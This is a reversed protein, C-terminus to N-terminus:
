LRRGALAENVRTMLLEATFPKPLLPGMTEEMAHRQLTEDAHGSIFLVRLRPHFERLKRALELGSMPPMVVDTILLDVTATGPACAELANPGGPATLVRYGHAELLHQAFGCVGPDDEVLLITERGRGPPAAAEPVLPAQEGEERLRPLYLRFTTGEGPESEVQVGGNSQKMIGYVMALGLGTGKDKSKTTFFPEFIRAQTDRDMGCGTDHLVLVMYDGRPLPIPGQLVPEDITAQETRVTLRGGRPMADRSNVALNMILQQIQDPDANVPWPKACLEAQLEIDEGILRRLMREMDSFMRNLDVARPLMPQKRSFALLQRTLAAAREGARRIETLPEHGPEHEAMGSLLLESYGNIVTLLNNFDHAVGGALRGIAEMKQAQRLQAELAANAEDAERRSTSDQGIGVSTGDPLLVSTWSVDIVRGDRVRTRLVKWGAQTRGLYDRAEKCDEEQPYLDRLIDRERTEQRSWGTVLEWERNANVFRGGPEIRAILLPVSEFIRQLFEHQRKLEAAANGGGSAECAGQTKDSM